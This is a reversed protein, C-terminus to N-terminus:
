EGVRITSAKGDTGTFTVSVLAPELGYGPLDSPNEDVIRDATLNSVSSVMSSVVGSDATLKQPADIQWKGANDKKIVTAEGERPKLEIQKIKSEDIALIKPNEPKPKDKNAEERKNSWYVLGGLGALAAAAILLRTTNM